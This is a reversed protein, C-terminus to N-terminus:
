AGTILSFLSCYSLTFFFVFFLCTYRKLEDMKVAMAKQFLWNKIASQSVGNIIQFLYVIIDSHCMGM